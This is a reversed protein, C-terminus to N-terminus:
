KNIGVGCYFYTVPIPNNKIVVLIHKFMKWNWIKMKRFMDKFNGVCFRKFAPTLINKFYYSARM